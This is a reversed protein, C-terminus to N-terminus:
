FFPNMTFKNEKHTYDGICINFTNKYPEILNILVLAIEKFMM